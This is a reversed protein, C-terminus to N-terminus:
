RLPFPRRALAAAVQATTWVPASVRKPTYLFSGDPRQLRELFAFARRGPPRGAAILAQIAWATSQADSPGGRYLSFGGDANQHRRIFTIARRVSRHRSSFGAARLAQVAAATDNSDPAVGRHWGWGGNSWQNRVLYRLTSATAPRGAARLALVGWITSNIAPGIAGSRKRFSELRTALSRVDRGLADLALIRLELDTVALDSKGQLYRAASTPVRGAAALGLVSWGTLSPDSRGRREAFGGDQNQHKRLFKVADSLASGQAPAALVGAAAVLSVLVLVLRVRSM